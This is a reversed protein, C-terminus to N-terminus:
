EGIAERDRRRRKCERSIRNADELNRNRWRSATANVCIRRHEDCYLRKRGTRAIKIEAGCGPYVCTGTGVIEKPEQFPKKEKVPKIKVEKIVKGKTQKTRDTKKPRRTPKTKYVPIIPEETTTKKEVLVKWLYDSMEDSHTGCVRCQVEMSGKPNIETGVEMSGCKRCQIM